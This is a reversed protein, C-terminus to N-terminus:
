SPERPKSGMVADFVEPGLDQRMEELQETTPREDDYAGDVVKEALDYFGAARLDTVLQIKPAPLETDFDHYVGAKARDEIYKRKLSYPKQWLDEVLEKKTTGM